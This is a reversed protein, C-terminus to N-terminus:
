LIIVDNAVFLYSAVVPM